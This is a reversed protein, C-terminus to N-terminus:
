IDYGLVLGCSSWAGCRDLGNDRGIIIGHDCWSREKDISSPFGIQIIGADNLDTLVTFYMFLWTPYIPHRLVTPDNVLQGPRELVVVPATWAGPAAEDFM